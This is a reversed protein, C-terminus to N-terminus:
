AVNRLYEKAIAENQLANVEDFCIRCGVSMAKLLHLLESACYTDLRSELRIIIQSQNEEAIARIMRVVGNVRVLFVAIANRCADPLADCMLIDTFARVGEPTEQLIAQHFARPVDLEVAVGDERDACTWGDEKCIAGLEDGMNKSKGTSTVPQSMVCAVTNKGELIKKYGTGAGKCARGIWSRIDTEETIPTEGRLEVFGEPSVVTKMTGGLSANQRLLGWARKARMPIRKSKTQIGVDMMFWEEDLRGAGRLSTGNTLSFSWTGHGFSMVDDVLERLAENIM